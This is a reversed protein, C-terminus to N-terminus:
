DFVGKFLYLLIIGFPIIVLMTGNKEFFIKDLVPKVLFATAGNTAASGSMFIAALVLKGWYPRVFRLLRFYLAM